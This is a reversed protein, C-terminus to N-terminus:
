SDAPTDAYKVEDPIDAIAKDMKESKELVTRLHPKVVKEIYDKLSAFLIDGVIGNNDNKLYALLDQFFGLTLEGNGLFADVVASLDNEPSSLALIEKLTTATTDTLGLERVVATAKMDESENIGLLYGLTVGFTESYAKLVDVSPSTKGNEVKSLTSVSIGSKEYLAELTIGENANRDQNYLERVQGFRTKGDLNISDDM